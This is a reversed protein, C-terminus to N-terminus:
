LGPFHLFRSGFLILITANKALFRYLKQQKKCRGTTCYKRISFPRPLRPKTLSLHNGDATLFVAGQRAPDTTGLYRPPAARIWGSGAPFHIAPGTGPPPIQAIRFFIAHNISITAWIHLCRGSQQCPLIRCGIIETLCPMRPPYIHRGGSIGESPQPQRGEAPRTSAARIYGSGVPPPDGGVYCTHRFTKNYPSLEGVKVIFLHRNM